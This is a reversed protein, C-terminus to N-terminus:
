GAEDIYEVACLWVVSDDDDPATARLGIEEDEIVIIDSLGDGFEGYGDDGADAMLFILGDGIQHGMRCGFCRSFDGFKNDIVVTREFVRDAFELLRDDDLGLLLKCGAESGQGLYIIGDHTFGAADKGIVFAAKEGGFRRDADM